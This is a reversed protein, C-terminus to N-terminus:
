IKEFLQYTYPHSEIEKFNKNSGPYVIDILMYIGGKKLIREIEPFLYLGKHTSINDALLMTQHVIDVSENGLPLIRADAIVKLDDDWSYLIKNELGPHHIRREFVRSTGDIHIYSKPQVQQQKLYYIFSSGYGCGLDLITKEDINELINDFYSSYEFFMFPNEIFTAFCHRKDPANSYGEDSNPTHFRYKDM